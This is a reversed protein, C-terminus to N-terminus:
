PYDNEEELVWPIHFEIEMQVVPRPFNEAILAGGNNFGVYYGDTIQYTLDSDWHYQNIVAEKTQGASVWPSDGEIVRGCLHYFGGYFVKRGHDESCNGYVEAPEAPDVGIQDFFQKVEDPFINVAKEFNRCGSCQCGEVTKDVSQYFERTRDVDIELLYNGFKIKM